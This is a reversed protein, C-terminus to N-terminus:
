NESLSRAEGSLSRGEFIDQSFISLVVTVFSQWQAGNDKLADILAPVAKRGIGAFALLLAEQSQAGRRKDKLLAILAPVVLKNGSDIKNLATAAMSGVMADEDKLAAILAPVSERADPGIRALATAAQSQAGRSKDKLLAILAPVVGEAPGIEGLVFAVQVRLVRANQKQVAPSLQPETPLANDDGLLDILVPAAGRADPGIKGLTNIASSRRYMSTPVQILKILAPVVEKADQGHLKEAAKLFSQLLGSAEAYDGKQFATTEAEAYKKWDADQAIVPIALCLWAQFLFTTMSKVM